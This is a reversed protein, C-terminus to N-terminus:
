FIPLQGVVVINIHQYKENYMSKFFILIFFFDALFFFFLFDFDQTALPM